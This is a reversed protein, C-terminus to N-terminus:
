GVEPVVACGLAGDVRVVEVQLAAGHAGVALLTGLVFTTVAGSGRKWTAASRMMALEESWAPQVPWRLVQKEAERKQSCHALVARRPRDKPGIAAITAFIVGSGTGLCM